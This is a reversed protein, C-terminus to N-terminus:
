FISVLEACYKSNKSLLYITPFDTGRGLVVEQQKYEGGLETGLFDGGGCVEPGRQGLIGRQGKVRTTVGERVNWGNGSAVVGTGEVSNVGQM